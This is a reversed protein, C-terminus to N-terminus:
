VCRKDIPLAGDSTSLPPRGCRYYLTWAVGACFVAGVFLHTFWCELLRRDFSLGLLLRLTDGYKKPLMSPLMMAVSLLYCGSLSSLWLIVQEKVFMNPMWCSIKHMWHTISRISGFIIIGSGIFGLQQAWAEKDLHADWHTVLLAIFNNIPDASISQQRNLPLIEILNTIIRYICYIAFLHSYFRNLRGFLTNESEIKKAANELEEQERYLQEQISELVLLEQHHLFIELLLNSPNM